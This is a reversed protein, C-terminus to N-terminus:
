DEEIPLPTKPALYQQYKDWDEVAVDVEVSLCDLAFDDLASQCDDLTGFRMITDDAFKPNRAAM